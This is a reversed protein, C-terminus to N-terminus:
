VVASTVAFNSSATRSAHFDPLKERTMMRKAVM